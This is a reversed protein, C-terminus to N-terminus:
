SALSLELQNDEHVDNIVRDEIFAHSALTICNYKISVSIIRMVIFILHPPFYNLTPYYHFTFDIVLLSIVQEEEPKDLPSLDL